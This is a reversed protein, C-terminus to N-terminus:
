VDMDASSLRSVSDHKRRQSRRVADARRYPASKLESFSNSFYFYFLALHFHILICVFDCM